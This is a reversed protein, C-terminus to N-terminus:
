RKWFIQGYGAATVTNTSSTELGSAQFEQDDVNM